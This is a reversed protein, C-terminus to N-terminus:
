RESVGDFAQLVSDLTADMLCTPRDCNHPEIEFCPDCDVAPRVVQVRPGPPTWRAPDTPGFIVVCPIGMFAALHSIGSDNGIYGGATKLWDVLDPLEGFRHVQRNQKKIESALDSEAPGCVFQPQWGREALVDALELFRALPWRKRISGAGPHIIIKSAEISRGAKPTHRRHWSSVLVNANVSEILRNGVLQQLLFEAVQIRDRAPPRPPLRLCPDDTMQNITNELEASFSFVVVKKYSSILDKIKEDVAGSFLIAFFAAELPYTKDALGLRAAMKGVQGQCLIDIRGFQKRLAIIAAFTLVVDGLAGQHIIFLRDEAM